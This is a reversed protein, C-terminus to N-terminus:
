VLHKRLANRSILIATSDSKLVVESSTTYRKQLLEKARLLRTNQLVKSPPQNTLAKLKRHLQRRSM